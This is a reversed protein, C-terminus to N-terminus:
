CEPTNGDLTLSAWGQEESPVSAPLTVLILAPLREEQSTIQGSCPAPLPTVPRCWEYGILQIIVALMSRWPAKSSYVAGRDWVLPFNHGRCRGPLPGPDRPVRTSTNLDTVTQLLLLTLGELLSGHTCVSHSKEREEQLTGNILVTGNGSLIFKMNPRSYACTGGAPISIFSSESLTQSIDDM